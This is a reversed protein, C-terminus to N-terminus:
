AALDVSIFRPFRSQVDAAMRRARLFERMRYSPMPADLVALMPHEVHRKAFVRASLLVSVASRVEGGDSSEGDAQEPLVCGDFASGFAFAHGACEVGVVQQSDKVVCFDIRLGQAVLRIRSRM